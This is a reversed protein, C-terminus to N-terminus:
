LCGLVAGQQLSVDNRAAARDFQRLMACGARRKRDITYFTPYSHGIKHQVQFYTRVAGAMEEHALHLYHPERARSWSRYYAMAWDRQRDGRAVEHHVPRNPGGSCAALVVAVGLLLVLLLVRARRPGAVPPRRSSM